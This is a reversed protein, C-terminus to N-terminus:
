RKLADLFPQPYVGLRITAIILTSIAVRSLTSVSIHDIKTATQWYVARSSRSFSTEM